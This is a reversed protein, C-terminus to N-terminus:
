AAVSLTAAPAAKGIPLPEPSQCHEFRFVVKGFLNAGLRDLQEISPERIGDVQL